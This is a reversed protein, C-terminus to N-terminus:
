WWDSHPSAWSCSLEFPMGNGDREYVILNKGNSPFNIMLEIIGPLHVQSLLGVIEILRIHHTLSLL